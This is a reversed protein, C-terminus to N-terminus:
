SGSKTDTGAVAVTASASSAMRVDRTRGFRQVRDEDHVLISLRDARRRDRWEHAGRTVFEGQADRARV